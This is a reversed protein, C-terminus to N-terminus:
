VVNVRVALMPILIRHLIVRVALYRALIIVPTGLVMLRCLAGYSPPHVTLRVMVGHKAWRVVGCTEADYPAVLHYNDLM